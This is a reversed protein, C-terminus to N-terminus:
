MVLDEKSKEKNRLNANEIALLENESMLSKLKLDLPSIFNMEQTQKADFSLRLQDIYCNFSSKIEEPSKSGDITGLAMYPLPPLSSDKCWFNIRKLNQKFVNDKDVSRSERVDYPTAFLLLGSEPVIEHIIEWEKNNHVADLIVRNKTLSGLKNEIYEIISNTITYANQAMMQGYWKNCFNWLIESYEDKNFYPNETKIKDIIDIGMKAYYQVCLDTVIHKKNFVNFGEKQPIGSEFSFYSKGAKHLGTLCILM